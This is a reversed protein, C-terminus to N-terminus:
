IHFYSTSFLNFKEKERRNMSIPLLYNQYRCKPERKCSEAMKNPNWFIRSVFSQGKLILVIEKM